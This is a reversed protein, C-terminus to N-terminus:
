RCRSSDHAHALKYGLIPAALASLDLRVIFMMNKYTSSDCVFNPMELQQYCMRTMSHDKHRESMNSFSEKLAVYPEIFDEQM